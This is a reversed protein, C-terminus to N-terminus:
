KIIKLQISRITLLNIMDYGSGLANNNESVINRAAFCKREANCTSKICLFLLQM